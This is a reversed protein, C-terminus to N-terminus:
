QTQGRSKEIPLKAAEWGTIGGRFLRVNKFGLLHTLIDFLRSSDECTNGECYVVIDAMPDIQSTIISVDNEVANVYFNRAGPVHGEAYESPERADIIIAQKGVVVRQFEEM